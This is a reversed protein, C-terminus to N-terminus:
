RDKQISVGRDFAIPQSSDSVFLQSRSEVNRNRFRRVPFGFHLQSGAIIRSGGCAYYM